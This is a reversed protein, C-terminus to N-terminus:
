QLDSRSRQKVFAQLNFSRIAEQNKGLNKQSLLLRSELAKSVPYM